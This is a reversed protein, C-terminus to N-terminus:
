RPEPLGLGLEREVVKPSDRWGAHLNSATPGPYVDEPGEAIQRIVAEAVHGPRLKPPPSDASAPTDVTSPFIAAVRVGWPM